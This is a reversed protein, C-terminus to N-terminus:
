RLSEAFPFRACTTQMAMARSSVHKMQSIPCRTAGRRMQRVSNLQSSRDPLCLSSSPETLTASTPITPLDPMIPVRFWVLGLGRRFITIRYVSGAFLLKILQRKASPEEGQKGSAMM